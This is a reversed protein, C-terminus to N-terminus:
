RSIQRILMQTSALSLFHAASLHTKLVVDVKLVCWRALIGGPLFAREEEAEPLNSVWHTVLYDATSNCEKSSNNSVHQQQIQNRNLVM